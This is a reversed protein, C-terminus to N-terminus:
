FIQSLKPSTVFTEPVIFVSALNNLFAGRFPIPLNGMISGPAATMNNPTSIDLTHGTGDWYARWVLTSCIFMTTSNKDSNLVSLFGNIRPNLIGGFAIFLADAADIETVFSSAPWYPLGGSTFTKASSVIADRTAGPLGAPPHWASIRTAETWVTSQELFLSRVQGFTNASPDTAPIAEAILPTGNSDGGLYLATHTYNPGYLVYQPSTVSATVVIDAHRLPLLRAYYSAPLPSPFFALSPHVTITNSSDFTAQDQVQITVSSGFPSVYPLAEWKGESDVKVSGVSLGGILVNLTHGIQGSGAVAVFQSQPSAGDNPTSICPSAAPQCAGSTINFELATFDFTGDLRSPGSFVAFQVTDGQALSVTFDFPAVGTGTSPSNPNVVNNSSIVANFLPAGIQNNVFAVVRVGDGANQFDNARAFAGSVNYTGATPIGASVVAGNQVTSFTGPEFFFINRATDLIAYPFGNVSAYVPGTSTIDGNPGVAENGAFRMPAFTGTGYDYEQFIIPKPPFDSPLSITTGGGSINFELATFDFTGDLRSPGSFVAFQVTDGQALSVTFNFPAVGTGTFPSNPNVVNNSSIVADFLPTGIQNNVFAVVRVGDGANQFDNARAFAGSVSYSGATPVGASVVAGNQVTSFTGPHFFFINRTTDLMAYPFGNVSAYVPGTSTIDGNPGVTENGAFRMPAFTGTGYDYEQFIIPKPPFDSPLSITTQANLRGALAVLAILLINRAAGCRRM